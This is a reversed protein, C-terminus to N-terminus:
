SGIRGPEPEADDGTDDADADADPDLMEPDPEGTLTGLVEVEKFVLHPEGDLDVFPQGHQMVFEVRDDPKLDMASRTGDALLYGPGVAVVTGRTPRKVASEPLYLKGKMRESEDPIVLVYDNRPHFDTM